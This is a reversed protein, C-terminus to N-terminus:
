NDTPLQAPPPLARWPKPFWAFRGNRWVLGDYAMVSEGGDGIFKFRCWAQDPLLLHAIKSYGGPFEESTVIDQTLKAVVFVRANVAKALWTPPPRWVRASSAAAQQAADGAFVAAYDEQEPKLLTTILQAPGYACGSLVTIARTTIENLDLAAM